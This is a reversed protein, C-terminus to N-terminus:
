SQSNRPIGTMFFYYLDILTDNLDYFDDALLQPRALSSYRNDPHITEIRHYYDFEFFKEWPTDIGYIRDVFDAADEATPNMNGAARLKRCVISFAADLAIWLYLCAAERFDPHLWAMNARLLTAAGRIYVPEASELYRLVIRRDEDQNKTAVLQYPLGGLAPPRHLIDTPSKEFDQRKAQSRLRIAAESVRGADLPQDCSASLSLAHYTPYPIILGQEKETCLFLTALLPIEEPTLYDVESFELSERARVISFCVDPAVGLAATRELFTEAPYSGLPSM